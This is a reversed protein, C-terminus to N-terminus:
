NEKQKVYKDPSMTECDCEVEDHMDYCKHSLPCKDCRNTACIEDEFVDDFVEDYGNNYDYM